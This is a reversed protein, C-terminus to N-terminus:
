RQIREAKIVARQRDFLGWCTFLTLEEKESPSVLDVRDPAVFFKDTVKYTYLNGGEKKIIIEQGISVYPLNGFIAKKNHGYIVSNGTYGVPASSKLFTANNSSIQWVGNKIEAPEIKLNLNLSPIIIEVPFENTLPLSKFSEPTNSFSLVRERHYGLAGFSFVALGLFIM